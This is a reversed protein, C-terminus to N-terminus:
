LDHFELHPTSAYNYEEKLRSVLHPPHRFGREPRKVGSSVSGSVMACVALRPGRRLHFPSSFRADV